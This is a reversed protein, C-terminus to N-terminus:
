AELSVTTPLFLDTNKLNSFLELFYFYNKKLFYVNNFQYVVEDSQFTQPLKRGKGENIDDYINM